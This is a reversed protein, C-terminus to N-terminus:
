LRSIEQNLSCLAILQMVAQINSCMLDMVIVGYLRELNSNADFRYDLKM